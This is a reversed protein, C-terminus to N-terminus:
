IIHINSLEYGLEQVKTEYERIYKRITDRAVGTRRYIERQSLADKVHYLIIKKNKM